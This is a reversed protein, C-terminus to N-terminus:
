SSVLPNQDQVSNKAQLDSNKRPRVDTTDRFISVTPADRGMFDPGITVSKYLIKMDTVERSKSRGSSEYRDVLHQYNISAMTNSRRSREKSNTIMRGLPVGIKEIKKQLGELKSEIQEFSQQARLRSCAATNKLQLRQLDRLATQTQELDISKSLEITRVPKTPTAKTGGLDSLNAELNCEHIVGFDKDLNGGYSNQPYPEIWDTEYTRHLEYTIPTNFLIEEKIKELSKGGNKGPEDSSTNLRFAQEEASNETYDIPKAIPERQLWDIPSKVSNAKLTEICQL